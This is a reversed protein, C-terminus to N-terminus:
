YIVKIVFVCLYLCEETIRRQFNIQHEQSVFRMPSESHSNNIWNLYPGTVTFMNYVTKGNTTTLSGTPFTAIGVVLSGLLIPAGEGFPEMYTKSNTVDEIGCVCYHCNTKACPEQHYIQKQLAVVRKNLKGYGVATLESQVLDTTVYNGIDPSNIFLEFQAKVTFVLGINNQMRTIQEPSDPSLELAYDGHIRKFAVSFLTNNGIARDFAAVAVAVYRLEKTLCTGSTLVTRENIITGSCVYTRTGDLLAVVYPYEEAIM